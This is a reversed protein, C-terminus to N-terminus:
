SSRDGHRAFHEELLRTESDVVGALMDPATGPALKVVRNASFATGGDAVARIELVADYELVGLAPALTRYRLVRSGDPRETLEYIEEELVAGAMEFRFASPALRPGGTSWEFGSAMGPLGVEIFREWDGLLDWVPVPDCDFTATAVIRYRDDGLSTTVVEVSSQNSM